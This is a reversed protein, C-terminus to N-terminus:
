ALTQMVIFVNKQLFYRSYLNLINLLEETTLTGCPESTLMSGVRFWVQPLSAM